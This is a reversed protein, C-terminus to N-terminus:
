RIPSSQDKEDQQIERPPEAEACLRALNRGIAEIQDPQLLYAALHPDSLASVIIRHQERNLRVQKWDPADQETVVFCLDRPDFTAQIEKM